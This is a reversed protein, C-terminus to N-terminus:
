KYNEILFIEKFFRNKFIGSLFTFVIFNYCYFLM